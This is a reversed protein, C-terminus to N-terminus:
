GLSLLSLIKRPKSTHTAGSSARPAPMLGSSLPTGPKSANTDVVKKDTKDVKVEPLWTEVGGVAEAIRRAADDDDSDDDSSSAAARRVSALM